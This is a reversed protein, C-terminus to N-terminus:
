TEVSDYATEPVITHLADPVTDFWPSPLGQIAAYDFPIYAYGPNSEDGVWVVTGTECINFGEGVCSPDEPRMAPVSFPGWSNRAIWHLKGDLRKWGVVTLAHDPPSVVTSDVVGGNAIIRDHLLCKSNIGLVVPGYKYIRLQIYLSRNQLTDPNRIRFNRQMKPLRELSLPHGFWVEGQSQLRLNCKNKQIARMVRLPTGGHCANWDPNTSREYANYTDLALQMNFSFCPFMPTDPDHIGLAVHMRDQLMQVVSVLYCCGCWKSVHQDFVPSLYCGPALQSDFKDGWALADVVSVDQWSWREPLNSSSFLRASRASSARSRDIRRSKWWEWRLVVICVAAIITLCTRTCLGRLERMKTTYM